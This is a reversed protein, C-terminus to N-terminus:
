GQCEFSELCWDMDRLRTRLRMPVCPWTGEAGAGLGKRLSSEGGPGAEM